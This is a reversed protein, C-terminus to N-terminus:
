YIEETNHLMSIPSFLIYVHIHLHTVDVASQGWWRCSALWWQLMGQGPRGTWLFHEVAMALGLFGWVCMPFHVAVVTPIPSAQLSRALGEWGGSAGQQQLAVLFAGDVRLFHRKVM